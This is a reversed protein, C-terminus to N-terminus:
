ALEWREAVQYPQGARHKEFLAVRSATFRLPAAELDAFEARASALANQWTGHLPRWSLALTLHPHYGGLEFTGPVEGLASVLTAHVAALGDGGAKLFIVREDFTAPGGLEVTFPACAAASSRCAALQAATWQGPAKLTIHPTTIVHGLAAQWQKVRM